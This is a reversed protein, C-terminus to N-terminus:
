LRGTFHKRRKGIFKTPNNTPRFYSLPLAFINKRLLIWAAAEDIIKYGTDLGIELGYDRLLRDCFSHFTSIYPEEAAIPILTDIRELMEQAAKETFTLALISQPSVGQSVLYAFRKTLVETKGSGAGAVILLPGTGYTVAEKQTQTLGKLIDEM